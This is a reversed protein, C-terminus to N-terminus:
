LTWWHVEKFKVNFPKMSEVAEQVAVEQTMGGPYKAAIESTYAYGIRTAAHDLPAWLVNGHTKSEIARTSFNPWVLMNPCIILRYSMGMPDISHCIPKSLDTLACGSIMQATVKLLFAQMDAFSAEVVM